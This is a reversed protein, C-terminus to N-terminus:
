LFGLLLVMFSFMLVCLSGKMGSSIDDRRVIRVLWSISYLEFIVVFSWMPVVISFVESIILVVVWFVCVLFIEVSESEKV